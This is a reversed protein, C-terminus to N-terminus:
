KKARVFITYGNENRSYHYERDMRELLFKPTYSLSVSFLKNIPYTIFYYWLINILEWFGGATFIKEIQFGVNLIIKRIVRKRYHRHKVVYRAPDLYTYLSVHNPTTLILTSNQNQVRFVEKLAKFENNKPLHEIVDTFYVLDFINNKFPLYLVDAVIDPGINSNVDLNVDGFRNEKCGINLSIKSREGSTMEKIIRLRGLLAIQSGRRYM